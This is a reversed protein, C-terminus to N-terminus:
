NLSVQLGVSRTIKLPVAKKPDKKAESMFKSVVMELDQVNKQLDAAKRKWTDIRSRCSALDQSVVSLQSRSSILEVIKEAVLNEVDQFAFAVNM